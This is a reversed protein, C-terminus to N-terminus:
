EGMLELLEEQEEKSFQCIEISKKDASSFLFTKEVLPTISPIKDETAVIVSQFGLSKVFEISQTVHETDMKHFAEDFVVLRLTDDEKRKDMRYIRYLSALVIIYFPSQSEGGSNKGMIYSLDSINGAVEVTMDFDLYTKYDTYKAINKKIDEINDFTLEGVDIIKSFLSDVTVKYENEFDVSFMSDPSYLRDDMLMKYIDEFQASPMVKLQYRDKGFTKSSLAKNLTNVQEKTQVIGDRLKYLLDQKLQEYAKASQDAIATELQPIAIASLEQLYSDYKENSEDNIDYGNLGKREGVVRKTVLSNFFKTSQADVDRKNETYRNKFDEFNSFRQKRKEYFPLGFDNIWDQKYYSMLLDKKQSLELRIPPLEMDIQELAWKAKNIEAELLKVDKHLETLTSSIADIKAKIQLPLDLDLKGKDDLLQQIEKQIAPITAYKDRYALLMDIDSSDFVSINYYKKVVDYVETADKLKEQLLLLQEEHHKIKKITSSSGICADQTYSRPNLKGFAYTRYIRCDSTIATPYNKLQHINDCKIVRGLLYDVYARAYNNSTIVEEALSNKEIKINKDIIPKVNVLNAGYYERDDMKSYIEIASDYYEPLVILHLKPGNIFGEIANAWKEDRIELLDALIHVDVPRNYKRELETKLYSQVDTLWEPYQKHIGRKLKEIATKAEYIQREYESVLRKNNYYCSNVSNQLKGLASNSFTLEEQDFSVNRLGEIVQLILEYEVADIPEMSFLGLDSLCDKWKSYNVVKGRFWPEDKTINSLEQNKQTLKENIRAELKNTENESLLRNQEQLEIDYYKILGNNLELNKNWQAIDASYKATQQEKTSITECLFDIESKHLAFGIRYGEEVSNRWDNYSSQIDRLIAAHDKFTALRLEINKLSKINDRMDEIHVEVNECIFDTLFKRTDKEPVFSVAKKFLSFFEEGLKGLKQRIFNRYKENIDFITAKNKYKTKFDDISMATDNKDVFGHAPLAEPLYFYHNNQSETKPSVNFVIGICFPSKQATDFMEVVVYSSFDDNRLYSKGDSRNFNYMGRLYEMLTRSNNSNGSKNFFKANTDGMFVLQLADVCTSKGSGTQGTLFNCGNEFELTQYSIYHWNVMHLKNLIKM